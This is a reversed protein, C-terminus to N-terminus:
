SQYILYNHQQPIESDVIEFLEPHELISPHQELPETWDETKVVTYFSLEKSRIHKM